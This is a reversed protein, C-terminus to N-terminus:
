EDSPEKVDLSGRRPRLTCTVFASAARLGNTWAEMGSEVIGHRKSVVSGMIEVVAGPLVARFFRAERIGVFYVIHGSCGPMTLMMLSAAQAMTEIIIVGPTLPFGPFHGAYFSSDQAYTARASVRVGPVVEAPGNVFLFPERQPLLEHVQEPSLTLTGQPQASAGSAM